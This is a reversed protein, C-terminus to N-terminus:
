SDSAHLDSKLQSVFALTFFSILSLVMAIEYRHFAVSAGIAGTSWLSAATATGSVRNKTKLIAGGGIFGMGTVIGYFVRADASAATQATDFLFDAANAASGLL